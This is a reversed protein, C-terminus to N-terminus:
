LYLSKATKESRPETGGGPTKTRKPKGRVAV